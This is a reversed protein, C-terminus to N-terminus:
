VVEEASTHALLHAVEQKMARNLAQHLEKLRPM